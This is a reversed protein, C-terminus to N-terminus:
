ANDTWNRDTIKATFVRDRTMAQNNEILPSSNNWGGVENEGLGQVEPFIDQSYLTGYDFYRVVDEYGTQSFTIKVQPNKVVLTMVADGDINWANGSLNDLDILTNGYLYGQANHCNTREVAPLMYPEGYTVTMDAVGALAVGNAIQFKLTYTKATYVLTVIVDANVVLNTFDAPAGNIRWEATYGTKQTIQPVLSSNFTAGDEVPIVVNEQGEQIFIVNNGTHSQVWVANLTVDNAINWSTGTISIYDTEGAIEWYLFDYNDKTPVKLTYSQGFTVTTTDLANGGNTNYTVTYQLAVYKVTVNINQTMVLNTFDIEDNGVVWMGEYGAKDVIQPVLASDFTEGSYYEFRDVDEGQTFTITFKETQTWEAKLTVNQAINWSSNSLAVLTKDEGEGMYWGNFTYGERVPVDLTYSTGFTIQKNNIANGGNSDYTVTYVIPTYKAVITVSANIILNEFDVAQDNITWEATHGAKQQLVPIRSAEIKGGQAISLSNEGGEQSFVVLYVRTWKATLTVNSSITWSEGELMVKQEGDNTTMFWGEFTYGEKTPTELIYASGFTVEKSTANVQGGDANLTITYTTPAYKAKLTYDETYTWTGATAFTTQGDEMVWASFTYGEKTPTPLTYSADYTVTVTQSDIVGGDANLTVTYTKPTYVQKLIFKDGAKANSFDKVEWAVDYGVKEEFAPLNASPPLKGVEVTTTVDTKQEFDYVVTYLNSQEDDDDSCGIFLVTSLALIISLVLLLKKM